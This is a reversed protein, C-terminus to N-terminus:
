WINSVLLTTLLLFLRYTIPWYCTNDGTFARGNLAKYCLPKCRQAQNWYMQHYWCLIPDTSTQCRAPSPSHTHPRSWHTLSDSGELLSQGRSKVTGVVTTHATRASSLSPIPVPVSPIVAEIVHEASEALGELNIACSDALTCALVM